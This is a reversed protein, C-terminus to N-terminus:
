VQPVPKGRLATVIGFLDILRLALMVPLAAVRAAQVLDWGRRLREELLPLAEHHVFAEPVLQIPTGRRKLRQSRPYDLRGIAALCGALRRPRRFTPVVISFTPEV